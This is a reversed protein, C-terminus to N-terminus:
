ISMLMPPALRGDGLIMILYNSNIGVSETIDDYLEHRSIRLPTFQEEVIEEKAPEILDYKVRPVFAEINFLIASGGPLQELYADLIDLVEEVANSEILIRICAQNDNIKNVWCGDLTQEYLLEPIDDARGQPVVIEVIRKAMRDFFRRPFFIFLLFLGTVRKLYLAGVFFVVFFFRNM